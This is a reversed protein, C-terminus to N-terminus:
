AHVEGAATAPGAAVRFRQLAIGIAGALTEDHAEFALASGRGCVSAHWQRGVRWAREITAHNEILAQELQGLNKIM